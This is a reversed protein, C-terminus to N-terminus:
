VAGGEAMAYAAFGSVVVVHPATESPTVIRPMPREYQDLMAVVEGAQKVISTARRRNCHQGHIVRSARCWAALFKSKFDDDFAGRKVLWTVREPTRTGGFLIRSQHLQKADLFLKGIENEMRLRAMFVAARFQDRDLFPDPDVDADVQCGACVCSRLRWRRWRRYANSIFAFPSWRRAPSFSVTAMDMAKGRAPFSPPGWLCLRGSLGTRAYLFGTPEAVRNTLRRLRGRTGAEGAERISPRVRVWAASGVPGITLM